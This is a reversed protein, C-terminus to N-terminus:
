QFSFTQADPLSEFGRGQFVTSLEVVAANAVVGSASYYDLAEQFFYFLLKM